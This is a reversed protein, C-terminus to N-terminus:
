AKCITLRLDVRLLEAKKLNKYNEENVSDKVTINYISNSDKKQIILSIGGMGM